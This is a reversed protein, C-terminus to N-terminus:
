GFVLWAVLERKGLLSDCHKVSDVSFLLVLFLFFAWCRTTVLGCLLLEALTALLLIYCM